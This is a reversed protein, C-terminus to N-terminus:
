SQSKDHETTKNKLHTNCQEKAEAATSFNGIANTDPQRNAPWADYIPIGNNLSKSIRYGVDSELYWKNKQEWNV